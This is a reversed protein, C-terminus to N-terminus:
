KKEVNNKCYPCYIIPEFFFRHPLSKGCATCRWFFKEIIILTIWILSLFITLPIWINNNEIFKIILCIAILILIKFLDLINKIKHKKM